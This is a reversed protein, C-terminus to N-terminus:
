HSKPALFLEALMCRASGGGYEEIIDIPSSLITVYSEIQSIQSPTLNDRASQSMVMYQEGKTNNVQLMNGCYKLVQSRSIDVIVKGTSKLKEEVRARETPDAISELCIIALDDGLTMIVNTHYYPVDQDDVAVFGIVEYGGLEASLKDLLRQDTRQSLCAYIIKNPRDIIMSGTGELIVGKDEHSTYSKVESVEYSEELYDIIDTRRELRRNPSYMPYLIIRGDDHTTFWNNPFVADTKKPQVSDEIVVVEISAAKLRSLLEDFEKMAMAAIEEISRSDNNSQFVNNDATEPNYGFNAPRVMLLTNACQKKMIDYNKLM